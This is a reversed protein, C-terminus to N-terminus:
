RKNHKHPKPDCSLGEKLPLHASFIYITKRDTTLLIKGYSPRKLLPFLFEYTEGTPRDMEVRCGTIEPM